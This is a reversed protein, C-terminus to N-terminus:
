KIELKVGMKRLIEGKASRRTSKGRLKMGKRMGGKALEVEEEKDKNTNDEM